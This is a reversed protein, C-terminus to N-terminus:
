VKIRYRNRDSNQGAIGFLDGARWRGQPVENEKREIERAFSATSRAALAIAGAAANAVDDHSGRPHDVSDRSGRRTQRELSTLQSILRPSDLLVVAQSLVVPLRDLFIQSKPKEAVRYYCGAKTFAEQVWQSGYADGVVMPCRYRKLIDVFEAVAAEPSFPPVIERLLDLVVTQGEVHAIGLTMSDSVGGSPDIFSLYKRERDPARERVGVDVCAEVAERSIFSEVDIRFRAGFEADAWAPDDAYAEVVIPHDRGVTGNMTWTPAHVVLINGDKGYNDRYKQYLLGSRAHPSSIAFLMAGPMMTLLAPKLARYVDTDPNASDENRWHAIEDLVAAIVTRGRISRQSNTTIEIALGNTLEITDATARKVLPALLPMELFAATYTMAIKAQDRDVALLQVVGREGPKLRRRFGLQEAGICALYVILSAAKIDKGSRRGMVFWAETAPEIPATERGTIERFIKLEDPSLPEGFLARDVVRWVGWSDGEFWNGFLNSDRCAEAYSIAPISV